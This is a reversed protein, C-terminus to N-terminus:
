GHKITAKTEDHIIRYAAQLLRKTAESNGDQEGNMAPFYFRNCSYMGSQFLRLDSCEKKLKRAKLVDHYLTKFFYLKHYFSLFPKRQLFFDYTERNKLSKEQRLQGEFVNRDEEKDLTSIFAELRAISREKSKQSQEQAPVEQIAECFEDYQEDYKSRYEENMSILEEYIRQHVFMGSLQSFILMQEQKDPKIHLYYNTHNFFQKLFEEKIDMGKCSAVITGKQNRLDVVTGTSQENVHVTIPFDRFVFGNEQKTFGIATLYTEDIMYGMKTFLDHYHGYTNIAATASTFVDSGISSIIELIPMEFYTELAVVNEDYEVDKIGKYDNYTGKIPLCFPQFYSDSYLVFTSPEVTPPLGCEFGAPLLPFFMVETDEKMSLSSISCAVNASGM